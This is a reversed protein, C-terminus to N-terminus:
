LFDNNVILTPIRISVRGSGSESEATFWADTYQPIRTFKFDIEITSQYVSVVNTNTAPILALINRVNWLFDADRGKRTSFYGSLGFATHNRPVSLSAMSRTQTKQEFMMVTTAQTPVGNSGHTLSNSIYVDGQTQSSDLTRAENVRVGVGIEVPTQGNLKYLGAQQDWNSDLWTVLINQDDNNNSSTLWLTEPTDNFTLDGALPWIFDESTNINPCYSHIYQIRHGPILGKSVKLIFDETSKAQTEVKLRREDIVESTMLDSPGFDQINYPCNDAM